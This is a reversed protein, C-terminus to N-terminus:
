VRELKQKSLQIKILRTPTIILQFTDSLPPKWQTHTPFLKIAFGLSKQDLKKTFFTKKLDNKTFNDSRKQLDEIKKM